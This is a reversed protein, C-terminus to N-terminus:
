RKKVERLMRSGIDKTEYRNRRKGSENEVRMQM